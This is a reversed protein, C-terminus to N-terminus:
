RKANPLLFGMGRVEQTRNKLPINQNEQGSARVTGPQKKASRTGQRHLITGGNNENLVSVMVSLRVKKHILTGEPCLTQLSRDRRIKGAITVILRSQLVSNQVSMEVVDTTVALIQDEM